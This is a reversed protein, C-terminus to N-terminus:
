VKEELIAELLAITQESKTWGFAPFNKSFEDYHNQSDFIYCLRDQINIAKIKQWQEVGAANQSVAEAFVPERAGNRINSVLFAGTPISMFVKKTLKRRQPQKLQTM